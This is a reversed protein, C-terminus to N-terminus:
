VETDEALVLADEIGVGPYSPPTRETQTIAAGGALDMKELDILSVSYAGLSGLGPRQFCRDLLQHPGVRQNDDGAVCM